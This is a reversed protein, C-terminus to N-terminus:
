FQYIVSTCVKVDSLIQKNITFSNLINNVKAASKSLTCSILESECFVMNERAKEELEDFM